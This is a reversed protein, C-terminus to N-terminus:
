QTDLRRKGLTVRASDADVTHFDQWLAIVWKNAARASKVFQLDAAGVAVPLTDVATGSKVLQM